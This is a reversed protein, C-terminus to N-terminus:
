RTTPSLAVACAKEILPRPTKGRSGTHVVNLPITSCATEGEPELSESDCTIQLHSLRLRPGRLHRSPRPSRFSEASRCPWGHAAHRRKEGSGPFWM